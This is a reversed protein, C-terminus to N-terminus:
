DDRWLGEGSRGAEAEHFGGSVVGGFKNEGLFKLFKGGFDMGLSGRLDGWNAWNAKVSSSNCRWGPTENANSPLKM